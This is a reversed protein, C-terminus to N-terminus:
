LVKQVPVASIGVRFYGTSDMEQKVTHFQMSKLRMGKHQSSFFDSSFMGKNVSPIVLLLLNKFINSGKGM